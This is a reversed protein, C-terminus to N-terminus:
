SIRNRQVRFSEALANTQPQYFNLTGGLGHVLLV